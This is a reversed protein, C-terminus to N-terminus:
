ETLNKRNVQIAFEAGNERMSHLQNLAQDETNFSRTFSNVNDQNDIYCGKASATQDNHVTILIRPNKRPTNTNFQYQM